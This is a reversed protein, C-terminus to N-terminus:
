MVRDLVGVVQGGPCGSSSTLRLSRLGPLIGDDLIIESSIELCIVWGSMKRRIQRKADAWVSERSKDVELAINSMTEGNRYLSREGAEEDSVERSDVGAFREEM